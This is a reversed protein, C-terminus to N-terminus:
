AVRRAGQPANAPHKCPNQWRQRYKAVAAQVLAASLPRKLSQLIMLVEKILSYGGLANAHAALEQAAQDIAPDGAFRAELFARAQSDEIGEAAVPPRGRRLLQASGDSMRPNRRRSDYVHLLTDFGEPNVALVLAARTKNLLLLFLECLKPTMNHRSLEEIYLTHRNRTLETILNQQMQVATGGTPLRMRECIAALIARYSGRWTPDAHVIVGNGREKILEKCARGKGQGTAGVLTVLREESDTRHEAAVVQAKFERYWSPEFFTDGLTSKSASRFEECKLRAAAFRELVTSGSAGYKGERVKNWTIADYPRGRQENLSFTALEKDSVGERQQWGMIEDIM